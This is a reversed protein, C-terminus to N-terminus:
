NRPRYPFSTTLCLITIEVQFISTLHLPMYNDVITYTVSIMTTQTIGSILPILLTCKSTTIAVVKLPSHEQFLVTQHEQPFPLHIPPTYANVTEQDNFITITYVRPSQMSLSAVVGVVVIIIVILSLILNRKWHSQHSM